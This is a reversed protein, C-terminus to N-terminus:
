SIEIAVICRFTVICILIRFLRSFGSGLLEWLCSGWGILYHLSLFERVVVPLHLFHEFLLHLLLRLQLLLELDIDLGLEQCGLELSDLSPSVLAGVVALVLFIRHGLLLRLFTWHAGDNLSRTAFCHHHCGKTGQWECYWFVLLVVAVAIAGTVILSTASPYEM